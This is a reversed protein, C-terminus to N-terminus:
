WANVPKGVRGAMRIRAHVPLLVRQQRQMCTDLGACGEAALRGNVTRVARRRVGSHGTDITNITAGEQEM